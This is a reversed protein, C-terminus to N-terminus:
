KTARVVIKNGSNRLYTMVRSFTDRMKEDAPVARFSPRPVAAAAAAQRVQEPAFIEYGLPLYLGGVTDPLAAGAAAGSTSKLFAIRLIRFVDMQSDSNVGTVRYQCSSGM